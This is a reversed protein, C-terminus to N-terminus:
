LKQREGKPDYFPLQTVVAEVMDGGDGKIAFRDGPTAQDAAVYALGIACGLTPSRAISTVRGAIEDGRVVLHCEEPVPAAPDALTFGVLQRGQGRQMQIDIGRGGVFWPKEGDLAWGMAVEHPHTLGDTDQGIIIHGKELRLVRQAEIGAPRLGYEKGAEILTDWLAEGCGAPVHIEWGLEGVFGVRILRAPIGAVIGTRVAMYPFAAASLDVEGALGALCDRANPGALNVAAYAGTVNAIDVDMRWEANWRLMEHHVAGSNGTTATVYFFDDALRCAVGDDVVAGGLDCMLTYRARGVPLDAYRYTYIRELFAGAEPGRLEIGGLTSVDIMGVAKRVAHVELEIAAEPEGVYHAPRLWQGAVTMVAGAELHRDHMPTRRVPQFGRGALQGFTEPWAPPRDTWRVAEALTKDAARNVLRVAGLTSVRGQSPGMGVTSFRKALEIDTFGEAVTNELDAITLDEDFDVFEKGERHPFIPWPHNGPDGRSDPIEPAAGEGGAAAWGAHRGEALAAELSWTANVAGAAHLGAPAEGLKFSASRDDYAVAGGAHAILAAAPSWGVSLCLLDCDIRRGAGTVVAGLRDGRAVAEGISSSDLISIGHGLVADRRPDAIPTEALELVAAVEVGAQLLDLVVGYGAGNSTAMVVRRGPKVGYLRILRAAASGLMIGPLDNNRFIAPQEIAGTAVVVAGARLKYMRRVRMVPLYHDGFWGTAAADSLVTIRADAEIKAAMERALRPGTEGAADLRAWNLSGGLRKERDVLVVERGAGAAELAAAMGAAGGGIVAVDAFLYQKDYDGPGAAMDVKGLGGWKRFRREWFTWIGRPRYFAQYYFGVPLFRAFREVWRGRDGALDGLTNQGTVAMGDEIERRDALVNPEAGVQVLTNADDGSMTLVGRPRHYKFSRSLVSVGNAALASAITDGDLGEYERGEFRFRISRDRDVLLGFPPDLRSM